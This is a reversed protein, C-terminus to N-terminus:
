NWPKILINKAQKLTTNKIKQIDTKTLIEVTVKNQNFNNYFEKPSNFISLIQNPKDSGPDFCLSLWIWYILDPM